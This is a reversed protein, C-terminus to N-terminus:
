RGGALARLAARLDRQMSKHARELAELRRELDSLRTEGPASWGLAEILEGECGLVVELAHVDAVSKPLNRGREWNSLNQGTVPQGLAEMASAVQRLTLRGRRLRLLDGFSM